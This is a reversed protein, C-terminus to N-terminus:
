DHFFISFITFFAAFVVRTRISDTHVTLRYGLVKLPLFRPSKYKKFGIAYAIMFWGFLLFNVDQV